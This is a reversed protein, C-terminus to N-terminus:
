RGTSGLPAVACSGSVARAAQIIGVSLAAVSLGIIPWFWRHLTMTLTLLGVGSVGVVAVARVALGGTRLMRCLSSGIGDRYRQRERGATESAIRVPAARLAANLGVLIAVAVL